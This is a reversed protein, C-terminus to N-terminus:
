ILSPLFHLTSLSSAPSSTLRCPLFSMLCGSPLKWRAKKIDHFGPPREFLSLLRKRQNKFRMANWFCDEQREEWPYPRDLIEIMNLIFFQILGM